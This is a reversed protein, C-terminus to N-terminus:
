EINDINSNIEIIKEIEEKAEKKNNVLLISEFEKPYQKKLKILCDFLEKKEYIQSNEGIIKTIESNYFNKKSVYGVVEKKFNFLGYIIFKKLLYLLGICNNIETQIVELIKFDNNSHTKNLKIESLVFILEPEYNEFQKITARYYVLSNIYNIIKTFIPKEDLNDSNIFPPEDIYFIGYYTLDGKNEFLLSYIFYRLIIDTSKEKFIYAKSELLLENFKLILNRRITEFEKLIKSVTIIQDKLKKNIHNESIDECNSPFPLNYNLPYNLIEYDKKKNINLSNYCYSCGM